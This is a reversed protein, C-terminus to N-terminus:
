AAEKEREAALEEPDALSAPEVDLAKAVGCWQGYSKVETLRARM